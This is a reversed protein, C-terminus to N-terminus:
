LPNLVDRGGPNGHRPRVAVNAVHGLVGVVGEEAGPGRREPDSGERLDGDPVVARSELPRQGFMAGLDLRDGGVRIRRGEGVGDVRQLVAAVSEVPEAADEEVEGGGVGGLLDLRDLAVHRRHQRLMGVGDGEVRPEERPHAREMVAAIVQVQGGLLHPHQLLGVLVEHAAARREVLRALLPHPRDGLAQRGEARGEALVHQLVFRSPCHVQRRGVNLAKGVEELGRECLGGLIAAALAVDHGEATGHDLGEEGQRRPAVEALRDELGPHLAALHAARGVVRRDDGLGDLEPDLPRLKQAIRGEGGELEVLGHRLRGVRHAGQELPHPATGHHAGALLAVIEGRHGALLAHVLGDLRPVPAVIGLLHALAAIGDVLRRQLGVELEVPDNLGGEVHRGLEEADGEPAAVVNGDVMGIDPGILDQAAALM